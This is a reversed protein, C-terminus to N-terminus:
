VGSVERALRSVFHDLCLRGHIETACVLLEFRREPYYRSLPVGAFIGESILDQVIQEAPRPTKVVFEHFFPGDHLIHFGPLMAIARKLYLARAHCQLAVERLGAPGLLSLYITVMLACLGQNTCINSTAKERRIHQERTSLTLVFGPQGDVDLTRGILRGPMQRVHQERTAFLGVYPGGLSVPLGLAQGDGVVIDAGFSGPPECLGFAHADSFTVVLLAGAAHVVESIAALDEFLGFFNPSQVVVAAVDPGLAAKLGDLDVTGTHSPALDAVQVVGSVTYTRSTELYEPHVAGAFIAKTRKGRAVRAAMLLAEAVASAGEYTSANAVDMGLLECVMSQFEFMAQLTGQSIEPQYPTYATLFEGRSAIHRIVAPIHHRYAGGGLFSAVQGTHTNALSMSTLSASLEAESQGAPLELPRRLRDIDPVIADLLADISPEGVVGLMREVEAVTAPIYKSFPIEHM